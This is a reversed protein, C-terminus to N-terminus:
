RGNCYEIPFNTVNFYLGEKRVFGVIRDKIFNFNGSSNDEEVLGGSRQNPDQIDCTTSGIQLVGERDESIQENAIEGNSVKSVIKDHIEEANLKNSEKVKVHLVKKYSVPDKQKKKGALCSQKFDEEWEKVALLIGLSHLFSKERTTTCVRLIRAPITDRGYNDGLLDHLPTLFIQFLVVIILM